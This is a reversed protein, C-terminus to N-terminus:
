EPPVERWVLSINIGQRKRIWDSVVYIVAGSFFIVALMAYASPGTPGSFAPNVISFIITFGFLIENIVGAIVLLPVGAIRKRVIGPSAEFVSKKTYPFLIASLGGVFFIIAWIITYNVLNLLTTYAFLTLFVQAILGSAIVTVWPSGRKDVKALAEPMVRNFAWSFMCRSTLLFLPGVLMFIWLIFSLGILGNILPNATLLGAFFNLTPPAPLNYKDPAAFYLYAIANTFDWGVIEYFRWIMVAYVAWSVGLAGLIALPQSRNPTKVEGGVWASNAFGVYAWYGLPLATVSAALSVAPFSGGAEKATNLILDYSNPSNTYTRMFENFMSVFAQHSTTLFLALAAFIGLMAPIFIGLMFWRIVKAGLVFIVVSIWIAFTGIMFIWNPTAAASGIETLWPVNMIAGLTAFSASIGYSVTMGSYMGMAFAVNVVFAWNVVFGLLPNIIHSVWVYDGGSRPMAVAMLGYTLGNFVCLIMGLTVVVTMDAGPFLQAGILAELALVIGINLGFTNFIFMDSWSFARVLGTAKRVYVDSL